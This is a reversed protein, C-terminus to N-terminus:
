TLKRSSRQPKKQIYEFFSVDFGYLEWEDTWGADVGPEDVGAESTHAHKCRFMMGLYISNVNTTEVLDNVAYNTATVWDGKDTTGTIRMAYMSAWDDFVSDVIEGSPLNIILSGTEKLNEIGSNSTYFLVKNGPTFRAELIIEDGVAVTGLSVTQGTTGDGCTGKVTAEDIVFGYHKPNTTYSGGIKIFSNLKSICRVNVQTRFRSPRDFSLIPQTLPAKRLGGTVSDQVDGANIHVGAGGLMRLGKDGATPNNNQYQSLLIDTGSILYNYGNWGDISEFFTMYYFYDDWVVDLIKDHLVDAVVKEIVAKDAGDLPYQLIGM